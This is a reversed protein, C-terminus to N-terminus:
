SRAGPYYSHSSRPPRHRRDEAVFQDSLTFDSTLDDRCKIIRSDVYASIRFGMPWGLKTVGPAHTQEGPRTNAQSVNRRNPDDDKVSRGLGWKQM